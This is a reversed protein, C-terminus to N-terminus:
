VKMDMEEEKEDSFVIRLSNKSEFIEYHRVM